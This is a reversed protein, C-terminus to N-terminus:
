KLIDDKYKVYQLCLTYGNDYKKLHDRIIALIYM